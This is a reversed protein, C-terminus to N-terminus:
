KMSLFTKVKPIMTISDFILNIGFVIIHFHHIDHDSPQYLLMFAVVCEIIGKIIYYVCRESEAIRKFAHNFAHAGEFLGLIGWVISIFTIAWDSANIHEVLIMVGLALIILSTATKNTKIQRYERKILAIIFQILGIVIMMGGVIYPLVSAVQETIAVCLVGVIFYIAAFLYNVVGEPIGTMRAVRPVNNEASFEEIIVDGYANVKEEYAESYVAEYDAIVEECESYSIIEEKEDEGM